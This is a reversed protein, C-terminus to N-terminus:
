QVQATKLKPSKALTQNLLLNAAKASCKEPDFNKGAFIIM